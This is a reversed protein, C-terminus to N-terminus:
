KTRSKKGKGHKVMPSSSSPSSPMSDEKLKMDVKTSMDYQASTASDAGQTGKGVNEKGRRQKKPRYGVREYKPLWRESDPKREPDMEKPLKSKCKGKRKKKAAAKEGSGTGPVQPTSPMSDPKAKKMLKVSALWNPSELMTMDLDEPPPVPPLQSSLKHAKTIDYRSYAVILQALTTKDDPTAKLLVELSKVAEEIDGQQLLLTAAKRWMMNMQKKNGQGKRYFDVAKRMLAAAEDLRGEHQYLTVLAGVIGPKYSDTVISELLTTVDKRNGDRLLQQVFCLNLDLSSAEKKGVFAKAADIGETKVLLAAQILFVDRAVEPFTTSTFACTEKCLDAQGTVLYFLCQNVNM